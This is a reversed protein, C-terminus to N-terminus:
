SSEGLHKRLLQRARFLHSKVDSLPLDLTTAIEDYRLEQFHRLEIIVRFKPPLQLIARHLSAQREAALYAHEPDLGGALAGTRKPAPSGEPSQEDLSMAPAGRRQLWNLALNAVIRKIWPGFPRSRDFSGLAGYARVFADQTLDLADQPEGVLRCAVAYVADQHRRVLEGYAEARGQLARGALEGDPVVDRSEVPRVELGPTDGVPRQQILAHQV